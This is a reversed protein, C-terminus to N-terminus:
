QLPLDRDLDRGGLAPRTDAAYLLYPARMTSPRGIELTDLHRDIESDTTPTRWTKNCSNKAACDKATTEECSRQKRSYRRTDLSSVTLPRPNAADPHNRGPTGPACHTTEEILREGTVPLGEGQFLCVANKPDRPCPSTSTPAPRRHLRSHSGRALPPVELGHVM